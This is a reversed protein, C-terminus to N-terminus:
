GEKERWGAWSLTAPIFDRGKRAAKAVGLIPEIGGVPSKEKEKAGVVAAKKQRGSTWRCSPLRKGTRGCARGKYFAKKEKLFRDHEEEEVYCCTKKKM